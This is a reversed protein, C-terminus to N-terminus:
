GCTPIILYGGATYSILYKKGGLDSIKKQITEPDVDLFKVEIEEMDNSKSM